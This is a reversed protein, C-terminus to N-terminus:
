EVNVGKKFLKFNFTENSKLEINNISCVYINDINEKLPLSLQFQTLTTEINEDDSCILKYQTTSRKKKFMVTLM